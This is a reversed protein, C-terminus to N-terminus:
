SPPNLFGDKMFLPLVIENAYKKSAETLFDSSKKGIVEIREFQGVVLKEATPEMRAEIKQGFIDQAIRVGKEPTAVKIGEIRELRRRLPAMNAIQVELGSRANIELLVPGVNKDLTLDVAAFGLNTVQQVRSAILLMEEWFPM